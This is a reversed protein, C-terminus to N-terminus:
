QPRGSDGVAVNVSVAPQQVLREMGVGIREDAVTNGEVRTGTIPGAKSFIDIGTSQQPIVDTDADGIGVAVGGKVAMPNHSALTIGCGTLDDPVTNGLSLSDTVISGSAGPGAIVIGNIEGSADIVTTAVSGPKTPDSTLTVQKGISVARQYVGPELTVTAAVRAHCWARETV